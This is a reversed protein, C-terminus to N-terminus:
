RSVIEYGGDRYFKIRYNSRPDIPGTIYYDKCAYFIAYGPEPAPVWDIDNLRLGSDDHLVSGYLSNKQFKNPNEPNVIIGPEPSIPIGVVEGDIETNIIIPENNTIPKTRTVIELKNVNKNIKKNLKDAEDLLADRTAILISTELALEEVKKKGWIAIM